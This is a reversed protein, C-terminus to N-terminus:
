FSVYYRHAARHINKGLPSPTHINTYKAMKLRVQFNKSRKWMQHPICSRMPFNSETKIQKLMQQYIAFMEAQQLSLSMISFTFHGICIKGTFGGSTHKWNVKSVVTHSVKLCCKSHCGPLFFITCNTTTGSKAKQDQLLTFPVQVAKHLFYVMYFTKKFIRNILETAFIINTWIVTAESLLQQIPLCLLYNITHSARKLFKQICFRCCYLM